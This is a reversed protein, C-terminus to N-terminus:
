RGCKRGLREGESQKELEMKQRETGGSREWDCQKEAGEDPAPCEGGGRLPRRRKYFAGPDTRRGDSKGM